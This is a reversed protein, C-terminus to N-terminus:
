LSPVIEKEQMWQIAVVLDESKFKHKEDGWKYFRDILTAENVLINNQLCEKWVYYLTAVIECFDSKAAKFLAIIYDINERQNGYYRLYYDRHKGLNELPLYMYGFPKRKVVNFWKQKKFEADISYM